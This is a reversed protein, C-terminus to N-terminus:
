SCAGVGELVEAAELDMLCPQGVWTGTSLVVGGDFAKQKEGAELLRGM